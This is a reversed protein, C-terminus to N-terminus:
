CISELNWRIVQLLINWKLCLCEWDNIFVLNKVVIWLSSYPINQMYTGRPPRWVFSRCQLKGIQFNIVYQMIVNIEYIVQMTFDCASATNFQLGM